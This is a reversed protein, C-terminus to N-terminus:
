VLYEQCRLGALGNAAGLLLDPLTGDPDVRIEKLGHFRRFMRVQLETLGLPGALSEVSARAAPLYVSVADLATV